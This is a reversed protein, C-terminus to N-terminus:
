NAFPHTVNVPQSNIPGNPDSRIWIIMDIRMIM